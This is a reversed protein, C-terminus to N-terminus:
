WRMWVDGKKVTGDPSAEKIHAKIVDGIIAYRKNRGISASRRRGSAGTNDAVDLHFRVQLM